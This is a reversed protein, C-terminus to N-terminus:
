PCIQLFLRSTSLDKDRHLLTYERERHRETERERDTERDRDRERTRLHVRAVSPILCGERGWGREEEKERGREGTERDRKCVVLKFGIALFLSSHLKGTTGSKLRM